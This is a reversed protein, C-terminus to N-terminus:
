WSKDDFRYNNTFLLITLTMLSKNLLLIINFWQIWCLHMLNILPLLLCKRNWIFTTRKFKRNMLSDQFVTNQNGVNIIIIIFTEQAAFWGMLFFQFLIHLNYSVSSQPLPASFEAKCLLLEYIINKLYYFMFWKKTTIINWLIVIKLTNKM